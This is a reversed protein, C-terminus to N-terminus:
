LSPLKSLSVCRFDVIIDDTYPHYPLNGILFRCFPFARQRKGEPEKEHIM